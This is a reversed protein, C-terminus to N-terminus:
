VTICGDKIKKVYLGIRCASAWMISWKYKFRNEPLFTIHTMEFSKREYRYRSDKLLLLIATWAFIYTYVYM